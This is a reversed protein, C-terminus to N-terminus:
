MYCQVHVDIDQWERFETWSWYVTVDAQGTWTM